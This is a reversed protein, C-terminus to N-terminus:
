LETDALLEAYMGLGPMRVEMSIGDVLLPLRPRRTTNASKPYWANYILTEASAYSVPTRLNPRFAFLTGWM